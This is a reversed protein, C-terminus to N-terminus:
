ADERFIYALAAEQRDHWNRPGPPAQSAPMPEPEDDFRGQNIWTAPLPCFNGRRDKAKSELIQLQSKLAVYARRKQTITLKQWSEFAKAKGERRPYLKWFEEFDHPYEDPIKQKKSKAPKPEDPEPEPAPESLLDENSSGKTIKNSYEKTNSGAKGYVTKGSATDGTVSNGSAAQEYAAEPNETDPKATFPKATEPKEPLPEFDGGEIAYIQEATIKILEDPADSVLYIQRQFKGDGDHPQEPRIYGFQEAEQIMRYVKDRGAKGTAIISKVTVEWDDPLSLLRAILGRTEESIRRDQLFANSLKTYGRDGHARFICRARTGSNDGIVVRENIPESM